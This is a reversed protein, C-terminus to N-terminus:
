GGGKRIPQLGFIQDASLIGEGGGEGTVEGFLFANKERSPNARRKQTGGSGGGSSTPRVPSSFSSSHPRPLSSATTDPELMWAFSSQALTSRTPIPGNPRKEPQIPPPPPTDPIVELVTPPPSNTLESKLPPLTDEEHHDTDMKDLEEIAPKIQLEAPPPALTSAGKSSDPSSLATRTEDVASSTMVVPTTDLAVTPASIETPSSITLAGLPPLEEEPLALSPDELCAKVFQIRAAAMEVTELQKGKEGEFGSGALLKLNTISEDLM